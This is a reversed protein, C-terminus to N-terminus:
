HRYQAGEMMLSDDNTMYLRRIIMMHCKSDNWTYRFDSHFKIMFKAAEESGKLLIAISSSLMRQLRYYALLQFYTGVTPDPISANRIM